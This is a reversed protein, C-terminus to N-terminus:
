RVGALTGCRRFLVTLPFAYFNRKEAIGVGATNEGSLYLADDSIAFNHSAAPRPDLL